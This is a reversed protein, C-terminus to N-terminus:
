RFTLGHFNRFTNLFTIQYTFKINVNWLIQLNNPKEKEARRAQATYHCHRHCGTCFDIRVLDVADVVVVVTGVAIGFDMTHVLMLLKSDLSVLFMRALVILEVIVLPKITIRM